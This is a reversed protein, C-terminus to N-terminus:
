RLAEKIGGVYYYQEILRQAFRSHSARADFYGLVQPLGSLVSHVGRSLPTMGLNLMVLLDPHKRYFRVTSRGALRMKEKQDDHPVDQWHYNVARPEYVIEIGAEQM